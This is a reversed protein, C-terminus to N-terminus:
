ITLEQEKQLNYGRKFAKAIIFLLLSLILENKHTYFYKSADSQHLSQVKLIVTHCYRSIFNCLNYIFLYASIAYLNTINSKDFPKGKSILLIIKIPLLIICLICFFYGIYGLIMYSTWFTSFDYNSHRGDVHSSFKEWYLIPCYIADIVAAGIWVSKKDFAKLKM